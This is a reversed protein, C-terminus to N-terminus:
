SWSLGLTSTHHVEPACHSCISLDPSTSMIAVQTDRGCDACASPAGTAITHFWFRQPTSLQDIRAPVGFASAHRSNMLNAESGFRMAESTSYKGAPTVCGSANLYMLASTAFFQGVCGSLMRLPTCILAFYQSSCWAATVSFNLAHIRVHRCPPM